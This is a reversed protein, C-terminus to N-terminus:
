CLIKIGHSTLMLEEQLTLFAAIFLNQSSSVVKSSMLIIQRLSSCLSLQAWAKTQAISLDGIELWYQSYLPPVCVRRWPRGCIKKDRCTEAVRAHVAIFNRSLALAVFGQSRETTVIFPRRHKWSSIKWSNSPLKWNGILFDSVAQSRLSIVFPLFFADLFFLM